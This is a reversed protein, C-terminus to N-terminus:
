ARKRKVYVVVGVAAIVLPVLVALIVLYKRFDERTVTLATDEVVKYRIGTVVSDNGMQTLIAKLTDANSFQPADLFNLYDVSGCLVLSATKERNDVLRTYVSRTMVPMRPAGVTTEGINVVAGDSTVFLPSVTKYGSEEFFLGLAAANGFVTSGGTQEGVPTGIFYTGTSELATSASEVLVSGPAYAVGWDDALFGTLEAHDPTDPAVFLMVNGFSETLYANLVGIEDVRGELAESAGTLDYRPSIIVLLDYEALEKASLNKLNVEATEYGQERLMLEFSASRSEGHGTVLGAKRTKGFATQLLAATLKNEGDYAFLRGTDSSVKFFRNLAYVLFRGTEPCNVIVSTNAVTDADTRKFRGFYLPDKVVDKYVLKVDDSASAYKEALRKVYLLLDNDATKDETTCFIIEVTRKEPSDELRKLADLSTQSLEYINEKTLDLYLGGTRASVFSLIANVLLIVAIVGATLAIAAGGYQLRRSHRRKEPTQKDNATM